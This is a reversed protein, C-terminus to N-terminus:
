AETEDERAPPCSLVMVNAGISARVSSRCNPCVTPRLLKDPAFPVVAECQCHLGVSQIKQVRQEPDGKVAIFSSNCKTNACFVLKEGAQEAPGLILLKGCDCKGTAISKAAAIITSSAVEELEAIFLQLKEVKPKATTQDKRLHLFSGLSNYYTRFKGWPIRKAEGIPLFDNDGFTRRLDSSEFNFDSPLPTISISFSATQDSHPDFEALMKIIQDPRWERAIETSVDEGYAALHQYAVSEFCFRLELAAYLLSSEDGKAILTSARDLRGAIDYLAM